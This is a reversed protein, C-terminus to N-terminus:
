TYGLEESSGALAIGTIDTTTSVKIQYVDTLGPPLLFQRKSTVTKVWPARDDAYITVTCPYEDAIVEGVSLNQAHPMRQPKGTHSVTMNTAGAQWQKISAGDLVYLNESLPDFHAATYGDSLYYIGASPKEPDLMFGKLVGGGSDYFCFYLGQYQGAVMTSPSMAAWQEPLMVGETLLRPPGSGVYALGDAAAWCVGHGFSVVSQVSVCAAIFEVPSDSMAEPSDGYVLRPRGTTLILLNKEYVGLAIPTDLCLTEYKAPWAHPRFIECYRVSNGSIGALMGNWLGILSKLDTPPKEYLASPLIDVGTARADDTTSAAITIDRLFYFSAGSLGAVTRYIRIKNIGRTEGGGTPPAALTSITLLAGPKCIISESIQPMGEEDWDSLYTYAYFRTEDDGTGATTQTVTPATAPRPIGLDRFSSPYPAGAIGILNDTVKPAGSGTFYTRKTPDEALFSRIAHVVDTWTFWYIPDTVSDRGLIAITKNGSTAAGVALPVRWPRLDGRDPWHNQSDVAAGDGLLKPQLAPKAGGFPGLRIITM